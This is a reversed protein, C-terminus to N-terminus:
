FPSFEEEQEHEDLPKDFDLDLDDFGLGGGGGAVKNFDFPLATDMYDGGGPSVVSTRKKSTNGSSTTTKHKNGSSTGFSTSTSKSFSSGTKSAPFERPIITVFRSPIHYSPFKGASDAEEGDFQVVIIDDDGRCYTTSDTVGM